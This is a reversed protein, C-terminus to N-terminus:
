YTADQLAQRYANFVEADFCVFLIKEIAPNNALEATTERLAIEVAQPIPYGYVGCSIAPFALTKL